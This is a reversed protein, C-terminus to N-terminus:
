PAFVGNVTVGNQSGLIDSGPINSGLPRSEESVSLGVLRPDSKKVIEIKTTNFDQLVKFNLTVILTEGSVYTKDGLKSLWNHWANGDKPLTSENISGVAPLDSGSSQSVRAGTKDLAVLELANIDWVFNTAVSWVM